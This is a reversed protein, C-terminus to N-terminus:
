GVEIFTEVKIIITINVEPLSLFSFDELYSTYFPRIAHGPHFDMIVIIKYAM